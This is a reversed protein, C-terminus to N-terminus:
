ASKKAISMNWLLVLMGGAGLFIAAALIMGMRGNSTPDPVYPEGVTELLMSEIDPKVKHPICSGRLNDYWSNDDSYRNRSAFILRREGQRTVDARVDDLWISQVDPGKWVSSVSYEVQYKRRFPGKVAHGVFVLESNSYMSELEDYPDIGEPCSTAHTTEATTCLLLVLLSAITKLITSGNVQRNGFPRKRGCATM